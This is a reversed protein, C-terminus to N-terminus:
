TKGNWSRMPSTTSSSPTRSSTTPGGALM